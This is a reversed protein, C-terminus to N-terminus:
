ADRSPVSPKRSHRASPDPSSVNSRRASAPRSPVRRPGAPGHTGDSGRSRDPRARGDLRGGRPDNAALPDELLNMYLRDRRGNTPLLRYDDDPYLAALTEPSPRSPEREGSLYAIASRLIAPDDQGGSPHQQLPHVAPRSRVRPMGVQRPLACPRSRDRAPPGAQGGTAHPLHRVAKGIPFSLRSRPVM